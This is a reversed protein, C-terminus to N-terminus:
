FPTANEITVLIPDRMESKRPYSLEEYKRNAFTGSYHEDQLHFNFHEEDPNHAGTKMWNLFHTLECFYFTVLNPNCFTCIQGFSAIQLQGCFLSYHSLPESLSAACVWCFNVWTGGGWPFIIGWIQDPLPAFNTLRSSRFLVVVHDETRKEIPERPDLTSRM